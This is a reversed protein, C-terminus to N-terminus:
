RPATRCYAACYAKALYEPRGREYFALLGFTYDRRGIDAFSFPPLAHRLLPLNTSLRATRKNGDQFPQLYSMFLMAFISQEFPDKIEGAKSLVQDFEESLKQPNSLPIYQSDDFERVEDYDYGKDLFLGQPQAATPLPRDVKMLELTRRALKIDALQRRGGRDGGSHWPWGLGTLRTSPKWPCCDWDGSNRLCVPM